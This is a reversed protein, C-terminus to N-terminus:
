EFLLENIITTDLFSVIAENDQKQQEILRIYHQKGVLHLNKIDQVRTLAVYLMHQDFLSGLYVYVPCKFTQGQCRHFTIAFAPKLKALSVVITMEPYSLPSLHICGKNKGRTIPKESLTIGMEQNRLIMGKQDKTTKTCIVRMGKSYLANLSYKDSGWKVLVSAENSIAKAYDINTQNVLDNKSCIFLSLPNSTFATKNIYDEMKIGFSKCISLISNTGQNRTQEYFDKTKQDLARMNKDLRSITFGNRILYEENIPDVMNVLQNFDGSVLIPIPLALVRDMDNRGLLTFEDLILRDRNKLYLNYTEKPNKTYLKLLKQITMSESKNFLCCALHTSATYILSRASEAWFSTLQHTKGTGPAGLVAVRRAVVLPNYQEITPKLSACVVMNIQDLQKLEVNTTLPENIIKADHWSREPLFGVPLERAFSVGDVWIRLVDLWDLGVERLRDIVDHFMTIKQYAHVYASLVPYAPSKASLEHCICIYLTKNDDLHIPIPDYGEEVLYRVEDHSTVISLPRYKSMFQRGILRHFWSKTDEGFVDKVHEYPDDIREFYWANGTTFIEKRDYAYRIQPFPFWAHRCEFVTDPYRNNTWVEAIGEVQDQLMAPSFPSVGQGGVPSPFGTFYPCKRYSAYARSMDYVFRPKDYPRSMTIGRNVISSKQIDRFRLPKSAIGASDQFEAFVAGTESWADPRKDCLPFRMKHISKETVFGPFKNQEEKSSIPIFKIPVERSLRILEKKLEDVSDYFIPVTKKQDAFHLGRIGNKLLVAHNFCYYLSITGRRVMGSSNKCGYTQYPENLFDGTYIKIIISAQRAITDLNDPGCCEPVWSWDRTPWKEMLLDRVCFGDEENDAILIQARSYDTMPVFLVFDKFKDEGRDINKLIENTKEGYGEYDDIMKLYAMVINALGPVIKEIVAIHEEGNPGVGGRNAIKALYFADGIDPNERIERVFDNVRHKLGSVGDPASLSLIRVENRRILGSDGFHVWGASILNNYTQGGVMIKHKSIPNRILAAEEDLRETVDGFVLKPVNVVNEVHYGSAKYDRFARGNVNIIHNKPSVIHLRRNFNRGNWQFVDMIYTPVV